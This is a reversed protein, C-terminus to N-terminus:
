SKGVGIGGVPATRCWEGTWPTSSVHLTRRLDNWAPIQGPSVSVVSQLTQIIGESHKEVSLFDPHFIGTATHPLHDNLSSHVILQQPYAEFAATMQDISQSLAPLVPPPVRRSNTESANYICSTTNYGAATKDSRRDDRDFPSIQPTAARQEVHEDRHRYHRHNHPRLPSRSRSRALQDQHYSTYTPRRRLGFESPISVREQRSPRSPANRSRNNMRGDRSLYSSAASRYSDSSPSYHRRTNSQGREHRARNPSKGWAKPRSPPQRAAM